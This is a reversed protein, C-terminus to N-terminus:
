KASKKQPIKKKEFIVYDYGMGQCKDCTDKLRKLPDVRRVIYAPNHIYPALCRPCLCRIDGTREKYKWLGFSKKLGCDIERWVAKDDVHGVYDQLDAKNISQLQELLVMSPKKLGYNMGLDVHSPLYRKKNVSTIAAVIVTPASQNFDSAQVVLVPRCGCQISGPRIGFDYYYIDGRSIAPTASIM